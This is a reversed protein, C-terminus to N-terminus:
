GQKPPRRMAAPRVFLNEAVRWLTVGFLTTLHERHGCFMGVVVPSGNEVLVVPAGSLGFQGVPFGRICRTGGDGDDADDGTIEGRLVERRHPPDAAPDVRWGVVWVETGAPLPRAFDVRNAAILGAPGRLRAWDDAFGSHEGHEGVALPSAAVLMGAIGYSTADPPVVHRCTLWEGSDVAFGNGDLRPGRVPAVVVAALEAPPPNTHPATACGALALSLWLM